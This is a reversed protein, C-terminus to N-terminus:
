FRLTGDVIALGLSKFSKMEADGELTLQDLECSGVDTAYKSNLLLRDTSMFFTYSVPTGSVTKVATKRDKLLIEDGVLVCGGERHLSLLKPAFIDDSSNSSAIILEKELARM